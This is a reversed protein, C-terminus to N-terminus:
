KNKDVKVVVVRGRNRVVESLDIQSRNGVAIRGQKKGALDYVILYAGSGIYEEPVIFRDGAVKFINKHNSRCLVMAKHAIVPTGIDFTDLGSTTLDSAGVPSFYWLFRMEVRRKSSDLVKLGLIRIKAIFKSDYRWDFGTKIFYSHGIRTLISDAPISDRAPYRNFISDPPAVKLSDLNINGMKIIHGLPVGIDYHLNPDAFPNFYFHNFCDKTDVTTICVKEMIFDFGVKENTVLTDVGSFM